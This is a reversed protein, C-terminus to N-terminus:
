QKDLTNLFAALQKFAKSRHSIELKDEIPMEAFTTDKGSPIFLPDYGFGGHGKPVDAISGDCRGEFYHAAGNIILCITAQYYASRDSQGELKQLLKENNAHDNTPTGAYRASFVGPEDKLACAIIGSDESFCNMGTKQFVYGAKSFANEEFTHFPEPLEDTIGAAKLTIIEISGNVLQQIELLKNRNNSAFILKM